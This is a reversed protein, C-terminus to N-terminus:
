GSERRLLSLSTVLQHLVTQRVSRQLYHHTLSATPVICYTMPSHQVRLLHDYQGRDIRSLPPPPCKTKCFHAVVCLYLIGLHPTHKEFIMPVRPALPKKETGRQPIDIPFLLCVCVKVEFRMRVTGNEAGRIDTIRRSSLAFFLCFCFCFCFFHPFRKITAFHDTRRDQTFIEQCM